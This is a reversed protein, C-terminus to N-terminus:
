LKRSEDRRPIRTKERIFFCSKDALPTQPIDYFSTSEKRSADIRKSSRNKSCFL